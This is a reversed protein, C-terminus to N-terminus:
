GATPDTLSFYDYRFSNWSIELLAHVRDYVAKQEPSLGAPKSGDIYQAGDYSSSDRWYVLGGTGSFADDGVFWGLDVELGFLNCLTPYLDATTTYKEVQRPELDRSWIMLPTNCLLNRNEAGKLELLFDTDTLYKCYHDGYVVVVTDEALGAQELKEMLGGVFADTEMMQAVARVYQEWTEPSASVGSAAAAQRARELHPGAVNNMSEDYPGHGSYTIVFSFFPGDQSVMSDFGNLMQSDCMYDDMGMGEYNYYSAFGLNQHIAKRNYIVGNAPHFSNVRYGLGALLRPLAAPFSNNVYADTSVGSIPPIVGTLSAFETSFTGANLYLPTYHHLFNVSQRQLACLNPTYAEQLMWTDLSEVMIMLLNKGALVGTMENDQRAPRTDHFAKIRALASSRSRSADSFFRQQLDRWTYQYLGTLPLCANPNKFESYLIQEPTGEQHAEHTHLAIDWGMEDWFVIPVTLRSSRWYLGGVSLLLAALCLPIRWRKKPPKPLLVAATVGAALTLLVGALLLLRMHVYRFSFFAAGDGAYLLDSLGFFNGFLQYMVAHVVTLLCSLVTTLLIVTRGGWRPLLLALAGFFLLWLLTFLLPVPNRWSVGGVYGYTKRFLLDLCLLALLWVPVALKPLLPKLKQKMYTDKQAPLRM